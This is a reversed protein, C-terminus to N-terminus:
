NTLFYRSEIQILKLSVVRLNNHIQIAGNLKNFLLAIARYLFIAIIDKYCPMYSCEKLSM